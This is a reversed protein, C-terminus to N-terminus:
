GSEHDIAYVIADECEISKCLYKIITKISEQTSDSSSLEPASFFISRLNKSIKVISIVENLLSEVSEHLNQMSQPNPNTFLDDFRKHDQTISRLYNFSPNIDRVIAEWDEKTREQLSVLQELYGQNANEGHDNSGFIEDALNLKEEIMYFNNPADREGSQIGAKEHNSGFRARSFHVSFPVMRQSSFNHDKLLGKSTSPINKSSLMTSSRKFDGTANSSKIKLLPSNLNVPSFQQHSSSVYM